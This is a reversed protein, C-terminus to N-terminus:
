PKCRAQRADALADCEKIVVCKEEPVGLDVCESQVRAFCDIEMKRATAADCPPPLADNCSEALCALFLLLSRFLGM